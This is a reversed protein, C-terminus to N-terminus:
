TELEFMYTGPKGVLAIRSGAPSWTVGLVGDTHGRPVTHVSGDANWLRVTSDDSSTALWTSDPSIALGAVVDNHRFARLLAPHPADGALAM